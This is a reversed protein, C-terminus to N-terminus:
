KIHSTQEDRFSWDKRFEKGDISSVWTGIIKEYKSNLTVNSVNRLSFIFVFYLFSKNIVEETSQCNESSYLWLVIFHVSCKSRLQVEFLFDWLYFDPLRIISSYNQKNVIYSYCEHMILIIKMFWQNKRYAYSYSEFWPM